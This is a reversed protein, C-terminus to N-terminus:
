EDIQRLKRALEAVRRNIHALTEVDVAIMAIELYTALQSEIKSCDDLHDAM